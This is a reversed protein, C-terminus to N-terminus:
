KLLINPFTVKFLLPKFRILRLYLIVQSIALIIHLDQLVLVLIQVNFHAKYLTLKFLLLLERLGELLLILPESKVQLTIFHVLIRLAICGMDSLFTGLSLCLLSGAFTNFLYTSTVARHITTLMLLIVALHLLRICM